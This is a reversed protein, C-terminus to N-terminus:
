GSKTKPLIITMVGNNYETTMRSKDV